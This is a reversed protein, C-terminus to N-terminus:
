TLDRLTRILVAGIIFVDNNDIVIHLHLSVRLLSYLFLPFCVIQSSGM